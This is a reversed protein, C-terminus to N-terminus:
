ENKRRVKQSGIFWQASRMQEIVSRVHDEGLSPENYRLELDKALWANARQDRDDGTSGSYETLKTKLAVGKLGALSDAFRKERQIRRNIEDIRDAVDPGVLAGDEYILSDFSLEVRERLPDGVGTQSQIVEEIGDYWSPQLSRHGDADLRAVFNSVPTLLYKAAPSLYQARSGVGGPSPNIQMRWLNGSRAIKDPYTYIATFGWIYRGTMNALIVSYRLFPEAKAILDQGIMAELTPRFEFSDFAIVKLGEAELPNSIKMKPSSIADGVQASPMSAYALM